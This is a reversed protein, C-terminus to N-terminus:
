DIMGKKYRRPVLSGEEPILNIQRGSTKTTEAILGSTIPWDTKLEKERITNAM